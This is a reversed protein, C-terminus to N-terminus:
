YLLIRSEGSCAGKDNLKEVAFDLMRILTSRYRVQAKTDNRLASASFHHSPLSPLDTVLSQTSLPKAPRWSGLVGRLSAQSPKWASAATRLSCRM